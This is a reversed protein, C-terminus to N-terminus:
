CDDMQAPCRGDRPPAALRAADPDLTAPHAADSPPAGSAACPGRPPYEGHRDWLFYIPPAALFRNLMPTLSAHRRRIGASHVARSRDQLTRHLLARVRPCDRLRDEIRPDAPDINWLELRQLLRVRGRPPPCPGVRVMGARDFLPCLTGMTALCEVFRVDSRRLAERVLLTGLGCGRVDPHIVVRRIIRLERNLRAPNRRFRGATAVNRLRLELPAFGLLLVGLTEGSASDRLAFVRDIFRPMGVGRYHMSAFAAYEAAEASVVVPNLSPADAGRRGSLPWGDPPEAPRTRRAARSAARGSTEMPLRVLRDPRLAAVLEARCTAALFTLGFRTVMRRLNFCIAAALRRHLSGAFEDCLLIPPSERRVARVVACALAARFREGESLDCVRRLWLRPEGLGCAVLVGYPSRLCGARAAARRSCVIGSESPPDGAPEGATKGCIADVVLKRADTAGPWGSVWAAQRCRAAVRRLLTSKGAGSPGVLLTLTGPALDLTLQEAAPGPHAVDRPLGFHAAVDRARRIRCPAARRLPPTLPVTIRAM